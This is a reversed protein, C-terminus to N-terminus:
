PEIEGAGYGGRSDAGMPYQSCVPARAGVFAFLVPVIFALLLLTSDQGM